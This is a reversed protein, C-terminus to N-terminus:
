RYQGQALTCNSSTSLSVLADRDLDNTLGDRNLDWRHITQLNGKASVYTNAGSDGFSGHKLSEFGKHVISVSDSNPAAMAPLAALGLALLALCGGPLRNLTRCNM